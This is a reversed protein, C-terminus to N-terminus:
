HVCGVYMTGFRALAFEHLESSCSESVYLGRSAVDVKFDSQSEWTAPDPPPAAFFNRRLGAWLMFSLDVDDNPDYGSYPGAKIQKTVLGMQALLMTSCTHAVLDAVQLGLVLVSDQEPRLVCDSLHLKHAVDSFVKRNPVLGRDFYATQDRAPLGNTALIKALGHLAELGFDRRQEITTVVVGIRSNHVAEHLEERARAQHPNRDM